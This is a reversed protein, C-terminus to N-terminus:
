VTRDAPRRNEKGVDEDPGLVSGDKISPDSIREINEAPVEREVEDTKDDVDADVGTKAERLAQEEGGPHSWIRKSVQKEVSERQQKESM